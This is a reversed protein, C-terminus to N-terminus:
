FIYEKKQCSSLDNPNSYYLIFLNVKSADYKPQVRIKFPSNAVTQDAYFVKVVYSGEKSAAYRATYHGNGNDVIEVQEEVGTISIYFFVYLSLLWLIRIEFM